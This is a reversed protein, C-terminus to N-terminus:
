PLTTEAVPAPDTSKKLRRSSLLLGLVISDSVIRLLMSKRMPVHLGLAIDNPAYTSLMTVDIEVIKTNLQEIYSDIDIRFRDESEGIEVWPWKEITTIAKILHEQVPPTRLTLNSWNSWILQLVNRLQQKAFDPLSYLNLGRWAVQQAREVMGAKYYLSAVSVWSIAFTRTKASDLDAVANHEADAARAYLARARKSDGDRLAAQAESALRESVRHHEIWSM